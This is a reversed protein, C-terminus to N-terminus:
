SHNQLKLIGYVRPPPFKMKKRVITFLGMKHCKKSALASQKIIYYM